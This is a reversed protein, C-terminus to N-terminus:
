SIRQMAVSIRAHDKERRKILMPQGDGYAIYTGTSISSVPIITVVNRHALADGRHGYVKLSNDFGSLPASQWISGQEIIQYIEAVEPATFDQGIALWFGDITETRPTVWNNPLLAFRRNNGTIAIATNDENTLRITENILQGDKEMAILHTQDRQLLTRYDFTDVYWWALSTTDTKRSM